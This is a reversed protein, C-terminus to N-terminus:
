TGRFALQQQVLLCLSFFTFLYVVFIFLSYSSCPVCYFSFCSQSSLIFYSRDVGM